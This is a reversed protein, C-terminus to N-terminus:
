GTRFRSAAKRLFELQAEFNRCMFCADLHLKLASRENDDLPREWAVSLLKSATRCDLDDDANL